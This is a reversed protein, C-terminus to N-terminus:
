KVIMLKKTFTYGSVSLQYFYTGSNLNSINYNIANNGEVAYHNNLITAVKNGINDYLNLSIKSSKEMNFSIEVNNTNIAPNPYANNLSVNFNLKDQSGVSSFNELDVNDAFMIPSRGSFVELIPDPAKLTGITLDSDYTLIFTNNVDKIYEPVNYMYQGKDDHTLNKTDGWKNNEVDYVKAFIDTVELSDIPLLKESTTGSLPDTVDQYVNFPAFHRYKDKVVDIWYLVVNKGDATKSIQIDNGFIGSQGPSLKLDDTGQTKIFFTTPGYSELEQIPTISWVGKKYRMDVIFYKTPTVAQDEGFVILRNIYSFDDVGRVFIESPQYATSFPVNWGTYDTGITAIFDQYVTRPMREFSSWNAGEDTSKSFAVYRSQDDDVFLNNIVAYLNGDPDNGINIPGNYSSTKTDVQRFYKHWWPEPNNSVNSESAFDFGYYGYYGYQSNEDVPSLTGWAYIKDKNLQTSLKLEGWEQPDNSNGGLEPGDSKQAVYTGFDKSYFAFVGGGQDTNVMGAGLDKYISTAYTVSKVETPDSSKTSNSNTVSPRMPAILNNPDHYVFSSDWTVGNDTSRLNWLTTGKFTNGDFIFDTMAISIMNSAPDFSIPTTENTLHQLNNNSMRILSKGLGQVQANKGGRNLYNYPSEDKIVNINNNSPNYKKNDKIDKATVLGAVSFFLLITLLKKM